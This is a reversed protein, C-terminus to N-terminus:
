SSAKMEMHQGLMNTRLADLAERNKENYERINFYNARAYYYMYLEQDGALHYWQQNSINSLLTYM